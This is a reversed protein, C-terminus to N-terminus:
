IQAMVSSIKLSLCSDTTLNKLTRVLLGSSLIVLTERKEKFWRCFKNYLKKCKLKFKLTKLHKCLPNDEPLQFVSKKNMGVKANALITALM